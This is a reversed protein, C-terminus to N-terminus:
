LLDLHYDRIHQMAPCESFWIGKLGWRRPASSAIGCSDLHM